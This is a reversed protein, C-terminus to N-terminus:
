TEPTKKNMKLKCLQELPLLLLLIWTALFVPYICYYFNSFQQYKPDESGNEKMMEREDHSGELFQTIESLSHNHPLHVIHADTKSTGFPPSIELQAQFYQINSGSIIDSFGENYRCGHERGGGNFECCIHKYITIAVSQKVIVTIGDQM